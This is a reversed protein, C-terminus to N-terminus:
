MDTIQLMSLSIGYNNKLYDNFSQFLLKRDARLRLVEDTKIKNQYHEETLADLPANKMMKVFLLFQAYKIRIQRIKDYNDVLLIKSDDKTLLLSSTLNAPKELFKEELQIRNLLGLVDVEGQICLFIRLDRKGVCIKPLYKSILIQRFNSENITIECTRFHDGIYILDPQSYGITMQCSHFKYDPESTLSYVCTVVQDDKTLPILDYPNKSYLKRLVFCEHFYYALDLDKVMDLFENTVSTLIARKFKRSVLLDLLNDQNILARHLIKEKHVKQQINLIRAFAEAKAYENKKVKGKMLPFRETFRQLLDQDVRICYFTTGDKLMIQIYALILNNHLFFKSKTSRKQRKIKKANKKLTMYESLLDRQNNQRYKRIQNQTLTMAINQYQRFIAMEEECYVNGQYLTKIGDSCHYSIEEFDNLFFRRDIFRPKFIVDGLDIDKKPGIFVEFNSIKEEYVPKILKLYNSEYLIEFPHYIMQYEFKVQPCLVELDAVRVSM